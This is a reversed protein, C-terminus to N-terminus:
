EALIHEYTNEAKIPKKLNYGTEIEAYCASEL